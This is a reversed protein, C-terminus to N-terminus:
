KVEDFKKFFSCVKRNISSIESQLHNELYGEETLEKDEDTM